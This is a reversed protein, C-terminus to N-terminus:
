SRGPLRSRTRGRSSRATAPWPMASCGSTPRRRTDAPHRTAAARATRRRVGRGPAQGTRRLRHCRRPLAPLASLEGRRTGALLRRLAAAAAAQARRLDRDGDRAPVQGLAPVVTGGGLAVLRRLAAARLLDGRRLGAGRRARKPLRRVPRARSRFLEAAAHGQLRRAEREAPSRLGQLNAAGDRAARGGSLPPERDRRAPMWRDRLVRRPGGRRLERRAHDPRQGRLQPELDARPLLQRLSLLPPEHDSGQGPLSRHPLDFRRSVGIARCPKPREGLRPRTRVAERRDRTRRDALGAAGLGEIVTEFLAPPIALYHAPRVADGLARKLAAFTRPDNYDGDVYGLLAILRDLAAEDDIGGVAQAISDRARAQLQQLDWGSRAVGIVPVALAGRKAMAYLAPFIMKHALDGTAGFLVLADAPGVGNHAEAM